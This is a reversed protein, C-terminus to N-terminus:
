LRTSRPAPPRARGHREATLRRAIPDAPSADPVHRRAHHRAPGLVANLVGAILVGLAIGGVIDVPNHAGVYIRAVGNLAVLIWPVPRWRRPLCPAILGAMAATIVAHGSV